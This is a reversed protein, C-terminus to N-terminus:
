RDLDSKTDISAENELFEQKERHKVIVTAVASGRGMERM